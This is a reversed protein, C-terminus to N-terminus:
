RVGALAGIQFGRGKYSLHSWNLLSESIKKGWLRMERRLRGGVRREWKRDWDRSFRRGWGLAVAVAGAGNRPLWPASALV